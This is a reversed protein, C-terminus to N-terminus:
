RKPNLTRRREVRLYSRLLSMHHYPRIPHFGPDSEQIEKNLKEALKKATKELKKWLEKEDLFQDNGTEFKSLEKEMLKHNWYENVANGQSSKQYKLLLAYLIKEEVNLSPSKEALAVVYHVAEAKTMAGKPPRGSTRTLARYVHHHNSIHIDFLEALVPKPISRREHAGREELFKNVFHIADQVTQIKAESM